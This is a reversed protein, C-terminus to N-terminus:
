TTAPRLPQLVARKHSVNPLLDVPSIANDLRDLGTANIDVGAIRTSRMNPLISAIGDVDTFGSSGSGNLYV